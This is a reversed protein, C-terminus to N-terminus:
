SFVAATTMFMKFGVSLSQLALYCCWTTPCPSTQQAHCALQKDKNDNQMVVKDDGLCASAPIVNKVFHCFRVKDM